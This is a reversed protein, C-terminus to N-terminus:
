AVTITFLGSVSWQYVLDTSATVVDGGNDVFLILPDAPSTPTDDWVEAYRHTFTTAPWTVDGADFTTVLSSVAYTKSALAQGGATYGGTTTLENPVDALVTDTTQSIAAAALHLTIKVTDSLLDMPGEGSTNGGGLNEPFAAHLKASVAM